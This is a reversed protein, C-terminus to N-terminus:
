HVVRNNLFQWHISTSSAPLHLAASTCRILYMDGRSLERTQKFSIAKEEWPVHLWSLRPTQDPLQNHGHRHLAVRMTEATTSVAVHGHLTSAAGHQITRSHCDVHDAPATITLLVVNHQVRCQVLQQRDCITGQNLIFLYPPKSPCQAHRSVM